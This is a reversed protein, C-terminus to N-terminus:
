SEAPSWGLLMRRIRRLGWDMGFGLLGIVAMGVIIKETAQTMRYFAIMFGLGRNSGVLEAAVISTWGIGMGIRLGTLITPLAGPLIVERLLTARTCGFTRAARVLTPDVGKVGTITNTVIPFFAGYFVIYVIATNGLGFILLALPIWAIPSIPRLLDVLPGLLDEVPRFFGIALGLPVGALAAALFGALHRELSALTHAVLAPMGYQAVGTTMLDWFARIAWTPPPMLVKFSYPLLRESVIQWIAVLAVPLGLRWALGGPDRWSGTRLLAVSATRKM